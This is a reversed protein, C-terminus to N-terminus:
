QALEGIKLSTLQREPGGQGSHKGLFTETGDVGCIRSIAGVGGPHNSVFSTLDYVSNDIVTWCDTATNHLSVEELTIQQADTSPAVPEATEQGPTVEPAMEPVTEAVVEGQLSVDGWVSSAGSHGVAFTLAIAGGAILGVVTALVLSAARNHRQYSFFSFLVFAVFLAIVVVVLASGWDSHPEPLGVSEALLEGSSNAAVANVAMIGLAAIVYLHSRKLLSKTFLGVIIFVAIVPVLVVVSHVIIPHGPLGGVTAWVAPPLVLALIILAVFGFSVWHFTKVV